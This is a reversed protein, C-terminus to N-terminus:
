LYRVGNTSSTAGTEDSGNWGTVLGAMGHGVSEEPML